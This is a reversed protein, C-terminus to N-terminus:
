YPNINAWRVYEISDPLLKYMEELCPSMDWFPPGIRKLSTPVNINMLNHCGDFAYPGIYVITNPLVVSKLKPCDSFAGFGIGKVIYATDNYIVKEPVVLTDLQSYNTDEFCKCAPYFVEVITDSYQRLIRYYLSGAKFDPFDNSDYYIDVCKYFESLDSDGTEVVQGFCMTSMCLMGIIYMRKM